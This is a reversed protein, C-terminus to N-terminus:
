EVAKILKTDTPNSNPFTLVTCRPLVICAMLGPMADELVLRGDHLRAIAAVIPLGLGNGPLSRSRDLRYFRQLVKQRENPAIGPGNDAVVIAVSGRDHRTCVRITADASAYKLANDLLNAMARALLDRDGLAVAEHDLDTVLAVGNAEATADYLEVVNTVIEKLAVPGFSRLRVGSEAEAIQLLKDFVSILEDISEISVRAADRLADRGAGRRLAEDLQSRIRALPTRLDHAIANSVDRVGDMLQQIRDLMRNIDHNLRTFEDVADDIPIRRSLDGSEIEHATRRIAAVRRELVRRFLLAGGIALVLAVAAGIMLARLVLQEIAIVDQLDRGVVLLAGDQLRHSLIRSTSLRGYRIVQVDTLRDAPTRIGVASVNGALVRGEPDLLLYVETDQDVGDTLLEDIETRLAEIGRESFHTTLRRSTADLKTDIGRGIVGVTGYYFVGSILMMASVVLAGYGLALRFIVSGLLRPM